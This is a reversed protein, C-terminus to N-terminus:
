GWDFSLVCDSCLNYKILPQKQPYTQVEANGLSTIWNSLVKAQFDTQSWSSVWNTKQNSKKTSFNCPALFKHSWLNQTSNKPFKCERGKRGREGRHHLKWLLVPVSGNVDDKGPGRYICAQLESRSYVWCTLDSVYMRNLALADIIHVPGSLLIHAVQGTVRYRKNMWNVGQFYCVLNSSQCSNRKRRSM